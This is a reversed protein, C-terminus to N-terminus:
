FRITIGAIGSFDPGPKTIGFKLGLSLDVNGVLPKVAFHYGPKENEYLRWKASLTFPASGVDSASASDVNVKGWERAFGLTLELPDAM